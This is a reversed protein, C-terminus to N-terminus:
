YKSGDMKLVRLEEIGKVSLTSWECHGGCETGEQKLARWVWHAGNEIDEVSLAKWM